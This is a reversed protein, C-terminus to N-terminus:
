MPHRLDAYLVNCSISTSALATYFANTACALPPAIEATSGVFHVGPAPEQAYTGPHLAGGVIDQPAVMCPLLGRGSAQMRGRAGAQCTSKMPHAASLTASQVHRRKQLSALIEITSCDM